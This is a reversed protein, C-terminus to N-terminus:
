QALLPTPDFIVQEQVLPKDYIIMTLKSTIGGISQFRKTVIHKLDDVSDAKIHAIIDYVGWLGHVEKVGEIKRLARVVHSESGIETNLLIYANIM